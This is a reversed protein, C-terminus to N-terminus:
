GRPVCYSDAERGPLGDDYRYRYVAVGERLYQEVARITALYHPDDKAVMGTLGILLAAADLDTCDYAAVFSQVSDKWAHETVDDAIEQALRRWEPREPIHLARGIELARDVAVWCMVKSHTYHRKAGRVEWIGHDAEHWRDGVSAVAASVFRWHEASLAAGGHLLDLLLQLLPGYVDLQLQRSASNGVRVPRSGLYGGLEGLEAETGLENGDVAYVPRLFEHGSNRDSLDLLWDVFELGETLSGLAALASATMSADRLWTYRYDWNRVGGPYEPLSTTAAAAIGGTPAYCLAKLVLASRRVLDTPHRPLRLEATWRRWHRNTQQHREKQSIRSTETSRTGYRLELIVPHGSPDVEAEATQHIGEDRIRWDIGPSRLVLPDLSDEVELGHDATRIRTAIRGFDLRPAFEIVVRRSGEIRRVLDTRGARQGPRGGSCDLYDTIEIDPWRTTLVLSDEQYSQTPAADSPATTGRADDGACPTIAFYGATPGGVLEAFIAPSDIRPACFWSIRGGDSVLAASRQDSLLSHREIPVSDSGTLWAGRREALAALYRSVDDTSDLRMQAVTEGPGVKIGLDPGRLTAFADEDTVDDGIYVVASAGVDARITDLASGKDTAVVALEVVMKGHRTYVGSHAAPGHEVAEVLEHRLARSEVNRYHFAISAPKCELAAGPAREAIAALEEGIQELLEAAAPDIQNSFDLDFESGHSGVLRISEPSGTLVALDKLSRGSILAVHTHPMAALRKLAVMTERRPFARNPDDVIPALTGDYDSTVLLVPAFAVAEISSVTENM